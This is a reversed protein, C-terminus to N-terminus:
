ATVEPLPPNTPPHIADPAGPRTDQLVSEVSDCRCLVHGHATMEGNSYPKDLPVSQNADALEACLDCAESDALHWSKVIPGSFWGEEVAQVTAQHQGQQWAVTLENDAIRQARLRHLRAAYNQARGEDKPSIVGSADRLSDRYRAVANAQGNTLGLCPRLIRALDDSSVPAETTYHVLLGRLAARQDDNVHTVLEAGHQQLWDTVARGTSTFSFAEAFRQANLGDALIAGGRELSALMPGDAFLTQMLTASYQQGFADYVDDAAAIASQGSETAGTIANRIEQYTITARGTRTDLVNATWSSYLIRAVRPAERDLYGNMIAATDRTNIPIPKLYRPYAPPLGPRPVPEVGKAWAALRAICATCM